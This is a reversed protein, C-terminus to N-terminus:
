EGLEVWNDNRIMDLRTGYPDISVYSPLHDVIVTIRNNGSKIAKAELYIIEEDIARSPHQALLGVPIPENLDIESAIGDIHELKQANIELEIEFQGNELKKYSSSELRLDYTIIRKFWDDILVHYESPTVKYFEELLELSTLTADLKNQHREVLTKLVQNVKSDGILEKMALMSTYSKGYLMYGEGQELYLPQEKSSSYSRGSFYRRNATQSLQFVSAKGYLKEMLVAETYKAFGEVFIGAGSTNKPSLVHGWWQHAVEHITRKAVLSFADSKREDVLYLNDEVMAITGPHAYGGFPWHAPIEAIRVHNYPYAGFEQDAYALTSKTSEMIVKNNYSHSKQFYHEITIGQYEEREIEYDASFYGIAPSVSTSTKFEYYNRGDESWERLLDGVSIGVQGSSTSLITRVPVKGYGAESISFDAESIREEKRPSLNRKRRESDNRIELSSRYGFIPSFDRVHIYSGNTIISLEFDLGLREKEVTFQITVTDGPQISENFKYLFVGQERNEEILEARNMHINSITERETILLTDIPAENKNILVYKAHVVYRSEEPFLAMETQIDSPFLRDLNEFKKYNKEYEASQDLREEFTLYETEINSKYFIFGSSFCFLLVLLSLSIKQFANWSHRIQKLKTLFGEAIGRHWCKFSLLALILGLTIWHGAFVHFPMSYSGYGNMGTYRVVPFDGIRLLPHEIGFSASLSSTFVLAILGTISMALYKNPLLSQLFLAMLIMFLLPAGQYYFMSIYVPFDFQYFDGAIQFGISILISVAILLIPIISLVVLKSLFSTSNSVPTADLIHHFNQDREKWVTEGSYFVILLLGLLFLPQQYLEVLIYTLPYLSESYTGGRYVTNYIESIIVFGWIGMVVWFPLSKLLQMIGIRTESIFRLWDAKLSSSTQAVASLNLVSIETEEFSSKSKRFKKETSTFSFRKYSIGLIFFSALIWIIRNLLFNGSLSVNLINKQAPTWYQSQEIFAAIGFPDGLAALLMSETNTPTSNALIPSNFYFSCIFYMVYILLATAYISLRNKTIIGVSFIISSCVLINPIIFVMWSLFYPAISFPSLRSPDHGAVYTGVISGIIIPSFAILSFLFVGLFRSIFYQHKKLGSSYILSEANYAQERLVGSIAFFMIAFVAGLTFISTYHTIQYPANFNVGNLAFGQAGIQFGSLFFLLIGIYLAWQKRQYQIEFVLLQKIM